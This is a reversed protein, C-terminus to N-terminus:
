AAGLLGMYWEGFMPGFVAGVIAGAIMWPGFPVATRRTARGSLILAIGYVGGLLFAAFAGVILTWWGFWGLMLGVLAALRVDGGGMGGPRAIRLAAYLLYMLLMSVVARVLAWWDAGLVCSLVFLVLIALMGLRVIGRPLRRTDLDIVTLVFGSAIFWLGALLAVGRAALPAAWVDAGNLSAWAEGFSDPLAFTAAQAHSEGQLTWWWATGVFLLGSGIEILPYRVSIRDGCNACKAGLALWSLVPVNHWPRVPAGCATCQSPRMLSIGAPVRYAVVNLFSGIVLGFVGAAILIATHPISLETM